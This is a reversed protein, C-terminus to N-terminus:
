VEQITFKMVEEDQQIVTLRKKGKMVAKLGNGDGITIKTDCYSTDFMSEKSNTAHM